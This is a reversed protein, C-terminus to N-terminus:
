TARGRRDPRPEIDPNAAFVVHARAIQDPRQRPLGVDLARLDALDLDPVADRDHLDLGPYRVLHDTRHVSGGHLSSADPHVVVPAGVAAPAARSRSRAGPRLPPGGTAGGSAVSDTRPALGLARRPAGRPDAP